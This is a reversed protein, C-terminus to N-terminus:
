DSYPVVFFIHMTKSISVHGRALDKIIVGSLCGGGYAVLMNVVERLVEFATEIVLFSIEDSDDEESFSIIDYEPLKRTEQSFNELVYFYIQSKGKLLLKIREHRSNWGERHHAAYGLAAEREALPHSHFGSGGGFRLRVAPCYPKVM